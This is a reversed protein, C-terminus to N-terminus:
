RCEKGVRREESREDVTHGRGVRAQGEAADFATAIAAFEGGEADAFEDVDLGDPDARGDGWLWRLNSCFLLQPIAFRCLAMAACRHGEATKGNRLRNGKRDELRTKYPCGHM